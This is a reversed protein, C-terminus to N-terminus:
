NVYEPKNQIDPDALRERYPHHCDRCRVSRYAMTNTYVPSHLYDRNHSGCMPCGEADGSYVAMNPHNTMWPRLRLYIKELLVVDQKNYKEMKKIVGWSPSNIFDTEIDAYTIKEKSGLGLFEGLANLSNGPFKFKSRAVQLTDIQKHPSPPIMHFQIMFRNAMKDDFRKLNHAIAINAKDLLDWLSQVFEEQTKYEHMHRFHVTKDGLWKYAYSMLMQHRLVEVVKYEGYKNGPYGEVIERSVELDYLLIGVSQKM